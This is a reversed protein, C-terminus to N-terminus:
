LVTLTGRMLSHIDCFFAYPGPPLVDVGPVEIPNLGDNVNWPGVTPSRFLRTGDPKVEVSWVNHPQFTDLNQYLLKQGAQVLLPDPRGAGGPYFTSTDRTLVLGDVQASAPMGTFAVAVLLLSTIIWRVPGGLFM